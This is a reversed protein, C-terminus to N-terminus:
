KKSIMLYSILVGLILAYLSSFQLLSSLPYYKNFIGLFNSSLGTGLQISGVLAGSILAAHEPFEDTAASISKPFLFSLGLGGLAMCALLAIEGTVSPLMFFVISVLFPAAIYLLNTSFKLAILTFLVRGITIGGWFLSLGISAKALSLGGERELFVAGFNGFTAECAGYLFVALAFWWIRKPIGKKSSDPAEQDSILEMPTFFTFVVMILAYFSVLAPAGWWHGSEIFANLLIASSATGLGLMIHMATVASTEKRPFLNYAFPNLATISFGFGAGIFATALLIVWFDWTGPMMWNSLFMLLMSFFLCSLGYLLVRKMGVYRAIRPAGLSSIIALAIQPIFISGYQASNFGHYDMDVFLNGAAPFLVLAVGVLFGSFYVAIVKQTKM